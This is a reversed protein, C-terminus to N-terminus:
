KAGRWTPWHCVLVGGGERARDVVSGGALLKFEDQSLNDLVITKRMQCYRRDILDTLEAQAWATEASRVSFEDMVLLWPALWCESWQIDGQGADWRAKLDDLLAKTRVIRAPQMRRIAERVAVACMQTKGTGRDGIIALVSASPNALFLRLRAVVDTYKPNDSELAAWTTLEAHRPEIGSERLLTASQAAQRIQEARAREACIVCVGDTVLEAAYSQNCVTCTM